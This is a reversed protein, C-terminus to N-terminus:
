DSPIDQAAVVSNHAAVLEDRIEWPNAPIAPFFPWFPLPAFGASIGYTIAV